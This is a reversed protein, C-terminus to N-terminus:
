NERKRFVNTIYGVDSPADMHWNEYVHKWDQSCLTPFILTGDKGVAELFGDIVADAGGEVYGLSKLSSHVIVSDGDKIGLKLASAKIDEKTVTVIGGRLFLWIRCPLM